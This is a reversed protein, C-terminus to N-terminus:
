FASEFDIMKNAIREPDVTYNGSNVAEHVNNVRAVDVEPEQALQKELEKLKAATSTLSVKDSGATPMEASTTEKSSKDGKVNQVHRDSSHQTKGSNLGNIENAM